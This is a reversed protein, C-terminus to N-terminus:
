FPAPNLNTRTGFGAPRNTGLGFPPNTALGLGTGFNTGGLGGISGGQPTIINFTGNPNGIVITGPPIATGPQGLATGAGQPSLATSPPTLVTGAAQGSLAPSINTGLAPTVNTGLAPTINTGIAPSSNTGLATGFRQNLPPAGPM